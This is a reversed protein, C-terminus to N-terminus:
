PRDAARDLLADVRANTADARRRHEQVYAQRALHLAALAKDISAVLENGAKVSKAGADPAWIAAFVQAEIVRDGAMNLQDQVDQTYNSADGM